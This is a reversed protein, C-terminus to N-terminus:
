KTSVTDRTRREWAQEAAPKWRQAAISCKRALEAASERDHHQTSLAGAADVMQLLMDPNDLMPCPMLLNENFPQQKRYQLFLPSHLAEWLSHDHINRDSYHIFACPEVDGHANIHLYRRGAAICGGSSDGDNWFDLFFLDKERRFQQIREKVRLRQEPLALLDVEANRGLPIYTFYWGFLAGKTIMTDIFADSLVSDTNYRHYCTSFGFAVGHDRLIDMADLMQRGSGHGRRLDTEEEFGEISVALAVNGAQELRKALAHDVVAANTFACFMCDDHKEALALIEDACLLPEGGSYLYMYVGLEKGESIIRDMTEFPLYAGKEYEGAWCGICSRNCNSTPDMLIAWPINVNHERELEYGRPIGAAVSNVFFNTVFAKRVTPSLQAFSRELLKRVSNDPKSWSAQLNELVRRHKPVQIWRHLWAMLKPINEQPNRELYRLGERVFVRQLKQQVRGAM